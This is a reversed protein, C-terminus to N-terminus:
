GRTIWTHISFVVARTKPLRKIVQREKRLFPTRSERTDPEYPVAPEPAPNHLVETSYPLHNWRVIPREVQVGDFLRQVRKAIQADYVAVPVHIRTLPKGVKEALTWRSPFCIVGGSLVHEEPGRTMIAFDEQVLRGLTGLPDSADLSVVVGDARTFSEGDAGIEACVEALLESAAAEAEPLCAIVANRHNLVLDDREAMQEAFREDRRLWDGPAMPRTGPLPHSTGDEPMHDHLASM